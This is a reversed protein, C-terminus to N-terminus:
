YVIGCGDGDETHEEIQRGHFHKDCSEDGLNCRTLIPIQYNTKLIQNKARAKEHVNSRSKRVCRRHFPSWKHGCFTQEQENTKQGQM